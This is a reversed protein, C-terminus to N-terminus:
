FFESTSRRTKREMPVYAHLIFGDPAIFSKNWHMNVNTVIVTSDVFVCSNSLVQFQKYVAVDTYKEVIDQVSGQDLDGTDLSRKFWANAGDM